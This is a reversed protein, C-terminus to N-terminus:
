DSPHGATSHGFPTIQTRGHIHSARNVSTRNQKLPMAPSSSRIKMRTQRIALPGTDAKNESLFPLEITGSDSENGIL